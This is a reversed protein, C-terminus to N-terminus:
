AAIPEAQPLMDPHPVPPPAPTGDAVLQVGAQFDPHPVPPPAPTGDAVFDPHPVPPPAPTGDAVFASHGNTQPPTANVTSFVPLVILLTLMLLFAYVVKSNM